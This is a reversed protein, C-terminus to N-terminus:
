RRWMPTLPRYFMYIKSAHELDVANGVSLLNKKVGPVHYVNKLTIPEEDDEKIVVTEEKEVRHISNDATITAEKGEHRQLSSFLKEDGIIHHSCGLDVILDNRLNKTTPTGPHTAEVTFCKGWKEDKTHSKSEVMNTEKLKVRCDRKFHGLKGCRYCKFKKKDMSSRESGDNHRPGGDKNQAKFSQQRRAVFASGSDDTIKVGSMQMALSEQSALLNEFEELSPQTAWGQYFFESILSEGQKASALENELLQLKTENKKNFLQYRSVHEFISSSISRKLAFEVKANKRTWEKTAELTAANGRPPTTSNGGVVDWLDESALYSEMCSKWLRYNYQNLIEMGLGVVRGTSEM